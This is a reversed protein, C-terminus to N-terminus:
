PFRHVINGDKDISVNRGKKRALRIYLDRQEKTFVGSFTNPDPDNRVGPHALECWEALLNPAARRCLPRDLPWDKWSRGLLARWYSPWFPAPQVSMFNAPIPDQDVVASHVHMNKWRGTGRGVRWATLGLHTAVGLVLVLVMMRRVTFRVRPWKM